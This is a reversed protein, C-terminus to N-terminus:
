FGNVSGILEQVKRQMETSCQGSTRIRPRLMRSVSACHAFISGCRGRGRRDRLPPRGRTLLRSATSPIKQTSFVPARQRSRGSPYGLPAVQQRRSRCHSSSPVQSRRHRVKRPWSSARPRSRQSCVNMSPENAGAFFPAGVDSFGLPALTRLPHHHDVALTNRQSYMDGRGTGRFDREDFRRQGGNLDRARAAARRATFRRAQDAVEGVVTIRQAFAARPPTDGQDRRVPFVTENAFVFVPSLQTAIPMAPDDLAGKSPQAAEPPEQYTM